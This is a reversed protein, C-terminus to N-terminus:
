QAVDLLTFQSTNAPTWGRVGDALEVYWWVITDSDGPLWTPGGIVVATEGDQMYGIVEGQDSGAESRVFSRLGSRIKVTAGVGIAPNALKSGPLGNTQINPATVDATPVAGVPPALNAAAPLALPTATAAAIEQRGRFLGNLLWFLLGVVLFMGLIGLAVYLLNVSGEPGALADEGTHAVDVRALQDGFEFIYLPTTEGSGLFRSSLLGQAQRQVKNQTFTPLTHDYQLVAQMARGQSDLVVVMNAERQGDESMFDYYRAPYPQLLNRQRQQLDDSYENIERHFKTTDSTM